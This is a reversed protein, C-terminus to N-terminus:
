NPNINMIKKGLLHKLMFFKSFKLAKDRAVPNGGIIPGRDVCFYLGIKQLTPTTMPINFYNMLVAGDDSINFM